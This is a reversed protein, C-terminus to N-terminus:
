LDRYRYIQKVYIIPVMEKKKQSVESLMIDKQIIWVQKKKLNCLMGTSSYVVNEKDM